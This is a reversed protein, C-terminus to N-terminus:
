NDALSLALQLKINMELVLLISKDVPNRQSFKYYLVSSYRGHLAQTPTRYDGHNNADVPMNEENGKTVSM